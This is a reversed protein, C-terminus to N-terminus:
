EYMYIVICMASGEENRTRTEQKESSEQCELSVHM